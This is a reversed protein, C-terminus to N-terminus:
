SQEEPPLPDSVPVPIVLRYTESSASVPPTMLFGQGAPPPELGITVEVARPLYGATSSDWQDYWTAGDFYRFRLQVIEPALLQEPGPLVETSAQNATRLVSRDGQSRSLGQTITSLYYAVTQLDSGTSLPAAADAIGFQLERRVHSIDLWLQGASGRIGLSGTWETEESTGAEDETANSPATASGNSSSSDASQTNVTSTTDSTAEDPSFMVARIDLEIRQLVARALQAREMEVKGIVTLRTSQDLAAYVAAFLM